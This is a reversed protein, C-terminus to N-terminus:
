FKSGDVDTDVDADGPDVGGREEVYANHQQQHSQPQNVPQSARGGVIFARWQLILFDM